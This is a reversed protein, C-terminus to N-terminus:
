MITSYMVLEGKGTATELVIIEAILEAWNEGLSFIFGEEYSPHQTNKIVQSQQSTM